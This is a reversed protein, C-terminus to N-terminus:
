VEGSELEDESVQKKQKILTALNVALMLLILPVVMTMLRNASDNWSLRYPVRFFGLCSIILMTSLTLKNLYINIDPQPIVFYAILLLVWIWFVVGWDGAVFLNQIISSNSELMHAPNVIVMIIAMAFFPLLFFKSILPKVKNAIVHNRLVFVCILFFLIAFILFIIRDKDLIVTGRPINIYLYLLWSSVFVLFMGSSMLIAKSMNRSTVFLLVLIPISYIFTESRCISLGILSIFMLALWSEQQDNFFFWVISAILLIYAATPLNTHIFFTQIVFMPTSILVLLSLLSILITKYTNQLIQQCCSFCVYGFLCIVSLGFNAELTILYEVGLFISFSQLMPVLPGWSTFSYLVYPSMGDFSTVWGLLILSFSDITALSFNFLHFFYNFIFFSLSFIFILLFDIRRFTSKTIFILGTLPLILLILLPIYYQNGILTFNFIRLILLGSSVIAAGWLFSSFVLFVTSIKPYIIKGFLLGVLYIYFIFIVDGM